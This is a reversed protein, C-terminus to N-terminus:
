GFTLRVVTHLLSLRDMNMVGGWFFFFGGLFGSVAFFVFKDKEYAALVYTHIYACM